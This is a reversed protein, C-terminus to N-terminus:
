KRTIRDRLRLWPQEWALYVVSAVACATVFYVLMYYDHKTSQDSWNVKLVYKNMLIIVPIHCLYLAYSIKSIWTVVAHFPTTDTPRLTDMFPLFLACCLSVMPFFLAQWVASGMYWGPSVYNSFFILIFYPFLLFHRYRVMVAWIAGYSEKLFVMLVGYMLSDLRLVTVKRIEWDFEEWETKPLNVYRLVLPVVLFVGIGALLSWRPRVKFRILVFLVIPFLLYFYEEITLSWSVGYFHGQRSLFNQLFVLYGWNPEAPYPWLKNKFMVFDVLLFLYYNPLTRFWRREWFNWLGGFTNLRDERALRLLIGGILFGSLVFFLEVGFFGNFFSVNGWATRSPMHEWFHSYIVMLIAIARMLDLGFVRKGLTSDTM